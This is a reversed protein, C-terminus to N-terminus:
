FKSVYSAFFIIRAIFSIWCAQSLRVLDLYIELLDVVVKVDEKTEKTEGLRDLIIHLSFAFAM